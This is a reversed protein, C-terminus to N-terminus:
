GGAVLRVSAAGHASLEVRVWGDRLDLPRLDDEVPSTEWARALRKGQVALEAAGGRGSVERVRVIIGRGDEAPKLSPAVVGEGRVELLSGSGPQRSPSAPVPHVIMPACVAAGLRTAATPDLPGAHPGLSFRFLFRGGQSEKFNTDWANNMAYAFFGSGEPEFRQALRGTRISGLTVVGTDRTAWTVGLQPGSVDLWRQAAHSDVCSGPLQEDGPRMTAGAIDLTFSGGPVALPFAVYIGEKALTELKEIALSLDVRDIGAWLVAATRIRPLDEGRATSAM